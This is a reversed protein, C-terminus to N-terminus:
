FREVVGRVVGKPPPQELFPLSSAECSETAHVVGDM